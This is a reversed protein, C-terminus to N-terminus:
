LSRAYQVSEPQCGTAAGVLCAAANADTVAVSVLPIQFVKTGAPLDLQPNTTRPNPTGCQLLSVAGVSFCALSSLTASHRPEGHWVDWSAHM